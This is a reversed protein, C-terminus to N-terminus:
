THKKQSQFEYVHHCRHPTSASSSCWRAEPKKLSNAERLSNKKTCMPKRPTSTGDNYSQYRDGLKFYLFTSVPVGRGMAPSEPLNPLPQQLQVAPQLFWSLFDRALEQQQLLLMESWPNHHHRMTSYTPSLLQWLSATSRTAQPNQDHCENREAYISTM